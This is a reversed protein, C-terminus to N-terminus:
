IVIDIRRQCKYCGYSKIKITAMRSFVNLPLTTIRGQISIHKCVKVYEKTKDNYSSALQIIKTRM